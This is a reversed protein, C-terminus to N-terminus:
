INNFMVAIPRYAETGLPVWENTLPSRYFGEKVTDSLAVSEEEPETVTSENVEGPLIPTPDETTNEQKSCGQLLCSFILLSLLLYKEKM